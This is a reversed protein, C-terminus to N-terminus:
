SLQGIQGVLSPDDDDAAADGAAADGIVEGLPAPRVDQQQVLSLQGASRGPVGGADDGLKM